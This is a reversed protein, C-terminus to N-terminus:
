YVCNNKNWTEQIFTGKVCICGDSINQIYEKYFHSEQRQLDEYEQQKKTRGQQKKSKQPFYRLRWHLLDWYLSYMSKTASTLWTQPNLVSSSQRLIGDVLRTPESFFSMKFWKWSKKFREKLGFLHGSTLRRHEASKRCLAECWCLLLIILLLLLLPCTILLYLLLSIWSLCLCM